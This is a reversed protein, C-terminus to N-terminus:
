VSGGVHMLGTVCPAFKWVGSALLAEWPRCHEGRRRPAGAGGHQASSNGANCQLLRIAPLPSFVGIPVVAQALGVGGRSQPASFAHAHLWAAWPGFQKGPWAKRANPHMSAFAFASNYPTFMRQRSKYKTTSKTEYLKVCIQDDNSTKQLGIQAANDNQKPPLITTTNQVNFILRTNNSM